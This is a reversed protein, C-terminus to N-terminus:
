QEGSSSSTTFPDLTMRGFGAVRVHLWIGSPGLGAREGSASTGAVTDVTDVHLGDIRTPWNVKWSHSLKLSRSLTGAFRESTVGVPRGLHMVAYFAQPDGPAVAGIRVLEVPDGPKVQTRVYAQATIPDVSDLMFGGAPDQFHADNGQVEIQNSQYKGRHVWRTTVPHKFVGRSPPGSMHYIECKPRTLAVYMVRAEEGPLADPHEVDRPEVVVVRDFELGKARHITSVVLDSAPIEYLDDPIYGTRIREAILAVDLSDTNGFDMRRLLTWMRHAGIGGAEDSAVIQEALTLFASKGIQQYPVGGLILAIWRPLARDTAARRLTHPVNKEHLVASVLLAQGNDRCLVATPTGTLRRLLVAEEVTGLSTLRKFHLRLRAEIDAYDPSESNLLPGAWLAGEAAETKFRHTLTLTHEKLDARFRRRLWRYLADSDTLRADGELEFNYIGQAPDGLLTFGGQATELVAQVLDARVGVLDQIEDVLIHRYGAVFDAAEDGTKILDIAAQIRGDYDRSSWSGDPDFEYLLRTAFSDFTSASVYRVDEDAASIRRRIERVAERSFTLVLIERGPSLEWRDVLDLLRAVLVHTKGTGPGATVLVRSTPPAEVVTRQEETLGSAVTM